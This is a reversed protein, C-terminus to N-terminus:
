GDTSIEAPADPRRANAAESMRAVTRGFSARLGFEALPMIICAAWRRRPVVDWWVRVESDAAASAVSWAGEMERFPFPFDPEDTLFATKLRMREDDFALAERWRRGHRDRCARVPGGRDSSEEVIEAHAISRAHKHITDVGRVVQWLPGVPATSPFSFGLRWWGSRSPHRYSLDIGILQLSGCVFVVGAIVVAILWGQPSMAGPLVLALAATAFVWGLDAFSAVLALPQPRRVAFALSFLAAAFVLLGLGIVRLLVAQETGIWEGAPQPVVTLVVGTCSSFFGNFSLVARLLRLSPPESPAASSHSTDQTEM